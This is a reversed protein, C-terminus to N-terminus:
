AGSQRDRQVDAVGDDRDAATVLLTWETRGGVDAVVAAAEVGAVDVLEGVAREAYRDAPRVRVRRDLLVLDAKVLWPLRDAVVPAGADSRAGVVGVADLGQAAGALELAVAHHRRQLITRGIGPGAREVQEVGLGLLDI